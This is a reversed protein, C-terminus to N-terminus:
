AQSSAGWRDIYKLLHKIILGGREVGCKTGQGIRSSPRNEVPQGPSRVANGIKRGRQRHREGRDLLVELNERTRAEHYPLLLAAHAPTAEVCSPEPRDLVPYERTSDSPLPAEVSKGSM